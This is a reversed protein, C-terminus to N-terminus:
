MQKSNLRAPEPCSTCSPISRDKPAGDNALKSGQSFTCGVQDKADPRRETVDRSPSGRRQRFAQRPDARRQLVM